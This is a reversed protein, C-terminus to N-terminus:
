EHRLALLPNVRTAWRAPLFTAAFVVVGMCAAVLIFVTPDTPSVGFLQSAIVRRLLVAGAIGAAIGIVATRSASGLVLRLVDSPQAGLAMRVGIEFTRAGVWHRTVGYVGGKM